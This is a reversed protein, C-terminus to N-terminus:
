LRITNERLHRALNSPHSAAALHGRPADSLAAEALAVFDGALGEAQELGGHIDLVHLLHLFIELVANAGTRDGSLYSFHANMLGLAAQVRASKDTVAFNVERAMASLVCLDAGYDRTPEDWLIAGEAPAARCLAEHPQFEQNYRGHAFSEFGVAKAVPELGAGSLLEAFDTASYWDIHPAALDDRARRRADRTLSVCEMRFADETPRPYLQRAADVTFHRLSGADYAHVYFQAAKGPALDRLSQLLAMPRAVHHLGGYLWVIDATESPINQRLLDGHVVDIGVIGQSSCYDHLRRVNEIEADIALVHEAGARLFALAWNGRGFGYDIVRAGKLSDGFYQKLYAACNDLWGEQLRERRFVTDPYDINESSAVLYM